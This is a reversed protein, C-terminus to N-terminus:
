LVNMHSNTGVHITRAMDKYSQPEIAFPWRMDSAFVSADVPVTESRPRVCPLDPGYVKPTYTFVPVHSDKASACVPAPQTTTDAYYADFVAKIDPCFDTLFQLLRWIKVEISRCAGHMVANQFHTYLKDSVKSVDIDSSEKFVKSLRASINKANMAAANDCQLVKECLVTHMRNWVLQFVEGYSIDLSEYRREFKAIKRIIDDIGISCTDSSLTSFQIFRDRSKRLIQVARLTTLDFKNLTTEDLVKTSPTMADLMMQKVDYDVTTNVDKPNLGKMNRLHIDESKLFFKLSRFQYFHTDKLQTCGRVSLLYLSRFKEGENLISTIPNYSIDLFVYGNAKLKNFDSDTMGVNFLTLFKVNFITSTFDLVRINTIILDQLNSFKGDLPKLNISPCVTAMTCGRIHIRKVDMCDDISMHLLSQVFAAADKTTAISHSYIESDRVLM